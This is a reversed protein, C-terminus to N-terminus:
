LSGRATTHCREYMRPVDRAIVAPDSHAEFFENGDGGYEFALMHATGWDRKEIGELMWDLWPWDDELVPLHDMLFGGGLDHLGTFHLERLRAVPLARIYDKAAMGLTDASIRAHSIDLLLGCGHTEIVETIVGPLVSVRNVHGQGERYPANEVIVREPGFHTVLAAVDAHTDAIIQEVEDPDPNDCDFSVGDRADAALHANVYSTATSKLFSEIEAWDTQALRGTGAHLGFHVAVPRQREAKAIMEPWPPTKFLDIEIRGTALLEAAQPSYNIAFNM